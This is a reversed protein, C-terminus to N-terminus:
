PRRELVYPSHLIMGVTPQLAAPQRLSWGERRRYGQLGIAFMGEFAGGIQEDLVIASYRREQLMAVYGGYFGTLARGYREPLLKLREPDALITLDHGPLGQLLDFIAQGHAFAPKGCIATLWGHGPVLVPDPEARILALLERSAEAHAAGPLAQRPDFQLAPRELWLARPDLVLLVFQAVVLPLALRRARGNEGLLAPLLVCGATMAYMMVNDFGGAHLRSLYSTLLGGGGFAWLFLGEGRRGSGIRALGLWLAGVLMPLIPLLDETWFGLKRDGQIGHGRPMEFVFFTFWGDSSRDAVLVVAGLLVASAIGFRLGKRWDLLLAGVGVAPLWMLASQKALFALATLGGALWAARNGRFRLLFAAGLVCVLFLTDNRALDYWYRLYGYGACFLGAALWGAMTGGGERRAWAFLLWACGLAALTSVLRLALYGEGVVFSCLAGLQFLLPTYLFSVHEPTPPCYIPLGARVRSSHDVMAGEMWELEFPYGLRMAVLVVVTVIATLAMVVAAGALARPAVSPAAPPM